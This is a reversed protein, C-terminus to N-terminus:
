AAYGQIVNGNTVFDIDTITSKSSIYIVKVTLAIFDILINIDIVISYRKNKMPKPV